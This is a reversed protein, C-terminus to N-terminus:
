YEDKPPPIYRLTGKRKAEEQKANAEEVDKKTPLIEIEMFAEARWRADSKNFQEQTMYIKYFMNIM